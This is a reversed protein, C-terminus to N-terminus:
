DFYKVNVKGVGGLDRVWCWFSHGLYGALIMEEEALSGSLEALFSCFFSLLDLIQDLGDEVTVGGYQYSLLKKTLGNRYM